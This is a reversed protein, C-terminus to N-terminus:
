DWVLEDVPINSIILNKDAIEIQGVTNITILCDYLKNGELICILVSFLQNRFSTVPPKISVEIQKLMEDTPMQCFDIDEISSVISYKQGDTTCTNLVIRLYDLINVVNLNPKEIQNALYWGQLSGNLHITDTGNDLVYYQVVPTYSCDLIHYLKFTQYFGLDREQYSCNKCNTIHSGLMSNIKAILRDRLKKTTEDTKMCNKSSPEDM